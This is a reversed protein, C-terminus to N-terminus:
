EVGTKLDRLKFLRTKHEMPTLAEAVEPLPWEAEGLFLVGGGRLVELLRGFASRQAERDLYILVNRCVVLDFVGGPLTRDRTLDHASFRVRARLAENVRYRMAAGEGEQRLYLNSLEAPLESLAEPKYVGARACELAHGDIDTAEVVGEIGARDLLMALSYAEEGCGCGASWIRLPASGRVQRLEALVRGALYDFSQANRYFRSVKITLRELLHAAEAEDDRLRELYRHPSAEGLAIMRNGIRRRVTPRRYLAFDIGTRERMLAIIGEIATEDIYGREAVGGFAITEREQLM